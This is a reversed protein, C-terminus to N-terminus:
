VLRAVTSPFFVPAPPPPGPQPAFAPGLWLGYVAVTLGVVALWLLGLWARGPVPSCWKYVIEM